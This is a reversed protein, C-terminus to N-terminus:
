GDSTFHFALLAIFSALCLAAHQTYGHVPSGLCYRENRGWQLNSKPASATTIAPVANAIIRSKGLQDAALASSRATLSCTILKIVKSFSLVFKSETFFTCKPGFGISDSVVSRDDASCSTHGKVGPGCGAGVLHHGPRCQARDVLDLEPIANPLALVPGITMALTAVAALLAQFQM